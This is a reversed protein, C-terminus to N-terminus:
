ADIDDFISRESNTTTGSTRIEENWNDDDGPRYQHEKLYGITSGIDKQAKRILSQTKKDKNFIKECESTFESLKRFHDDPDDHGDYQTEYYEIIDPMMPILKDKVTEVFTDIETQTFVRRIREVVMFDVDIDEVILDSVKEILVKRWEFPLLGNDQLKPILETELTAHIYGGPNCIHSYIDPYLSVYQNIFDVGCRSGLFTCVESETTESHLRHCLNTWYKKPVEVKAGEIDISGCTVENVITKIKTGGIYIEFLEPNKSILSAFADAITPHTFTYIFVGQSKILRLLSGELGMMANIVESERSGLLQLAKEHRATFEVPCPLYGGNMFLLAIATKNHVDLNQLVEILFELPNRIFNLLSTKTTELQKTFLPNGLRRALEPLFGIEAAIADLSPKIAKRFAHPQHGLKLHNYLIQQKEKSSLEAVKIVVQSEKLVPLATFKLDISAANYIYDRSTMVIRANKKNLAARIHPFTSNWEMARHRDYQTSGFADDIWFFQGQENPNWHENFERPTNIKITSSNWIDLAGMSLCAAITSKGSMPEGLLLVIGHEQIANVSKRYADTIVFTALDDGLSSLIEEAQAYARQDLIQSLDGLGYVRPVLMRLRSSERIQKTIWTRGYVSVTKVGTINQIEQKIESEREASVKFNTLLIYNDSLGKAVLLEIKDLEDKIDSLTLSADPKITHKCQIVFSGSYRFGDVEKSTGQFAGDRGGDNGSLFTTVTQGFVEEVISNCLEQFANWGITHLEYTVETGQVISKISM